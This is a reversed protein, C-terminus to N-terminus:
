NRTMVFTGKTEGIHWTGEIHSPSVFHGEYEVSHTWGGTAYTKTFEVGGGPPESGRLMAFTSADADGTRNPENTVGVFTHGRENINASFPVTLDGGGDAAQTYSGSWVGDVEAHAALPTLGLMMVAAILMRM